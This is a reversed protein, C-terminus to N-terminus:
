KGKIDLRDLIGQLSVGPHTLYLRLVDEVLSKEAGTKKCIKKVDYGKQAYKFILGVDSAGENEPMDEASVAAAKAHGYYVTKPDKSLLKEWSKGILTGEHLPLEYLPNLDGVFLEGSDLLLSISDDSHGPTSIVEGDIGYKLLFARSEEESIVTVSEDRIPVHDDRKEKEFLADADHIHSRQVSLVIIKANAIDAIEQSLGCHDPHFHSIMIIDIESVKRKHQKLLDRFAPFTGAWGTDFLLTGYRGTILYTNTNSYRLETIQPAMIGKVRYHNLFQSWEMGM